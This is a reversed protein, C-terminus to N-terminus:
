RCCSPMAIEAPAFHRGIQGAKAFKDISVMGIMRWAITTGSSGNALWCSKSRLIRTARLCVSSCGRDRPPPAADARGARTKCATRRSGSPLRCLGAARAAPRSNRRRYQAVRQRLRRQRQHMLTKRCVSERRPPQRMGIAEEGMVAFDVRHAAVDIPHIRPTARQVRFQEAVIEILHPRQDRM